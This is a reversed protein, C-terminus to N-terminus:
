IVSAARLVRQTNGGWLKALAEESWGRALLARTVNPYDSVDRLGAFGGGGGDLDFGIGVHDIGAVAVAHEIHRIVDDLSVTPNPHQACVVDYARSEAARMEPTPVADRYQMLVDAIGATRGNGPDDRLAIALANIQIVGGKTALARLLDDGVNRPHDCAGRPGSHSLVVPASSLALLQELVADSAHSADLVIGLRNCEAVIERGLPSLGGWEPGRPDTSADAVENNLMHTLGLMRVGLRHFTAVHGPDRGLSYANEISLYIARRGEAKLRPGDDASLALGCQAANERLVAHTREFCRLAVDHAVAHGAPTRAAQGVYVAFMMADVGGDRLRPLDCQSGDVAFDHRAGFDWGPKILSATPTDCHTDFTFLREHLASASDPSM